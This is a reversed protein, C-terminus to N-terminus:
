LQRWPNFLWKKQENDTNKKEMGTVLNVFLVTKKLCTFTVNHRKTM